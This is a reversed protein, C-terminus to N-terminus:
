EIRYIHNLWYVVASISIFLPAPLQVGFHKFLYGRTLVDESLSSFFVGFGFLALQPLAEPFSSISLIKETKLGISACFTVGYLVIGMIMGLVGNKLWGKKTDLGWAALGTFGQWKALLWASIFFVFQFLFFGLPNYQFIVFYEATHYLVFLLFFGLVFKIQRAAM